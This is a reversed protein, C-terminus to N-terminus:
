QIYVKQIVCSGNKAEFYVGGYGQEFTIKTASTFTIRRFSLPAHLVYSAGSVVSFSPFTLTYLGTSGVSTNDYYQIMISKANTMDSATISGTTASTSSGNYVRTWSTTPITPTNSLDNYSGTKAVNALGSVKTAPIAIDSFTVAIKGDTQVIKSPTKSASGNATVDLANIKNNLVTGQYASLALGDTHESTTLNNALKVHGYNATTGLGYTNESSAHSTPAKGSLASNITRNRVPNNSTSSLSADVTVASPITPKNTLDNYSGTQAVRSLTGFTSEVISRMDTISSVGNANTSYQYLPLDFIYESGDNINQQIISSVKEFRCINDGTQSLDIRIVLYGNENANLTISDSTGQSVMSGGCIVAEGTGLEVVFSTSSSTIALEQGINAIVYSQNGAFTNFMARDRVASIEINEVKYSVSM